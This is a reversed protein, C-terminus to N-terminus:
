EGRQTIGYHEMVRCIGRVVSPHRNTQPGREWRVIMVAREGGKGGLGGKGGRGKPARDSVSKIPPFPAEEADGERASVAM